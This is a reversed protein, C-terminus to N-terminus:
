EKLQLQRIETLIQAIQKKLPKHANTNTQEGAKIDMKTIALEKRLKTLKNQLKKIPDTKKTAM